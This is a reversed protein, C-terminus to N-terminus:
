KTSAKKATKKRKSKGQKGHTKGRLEKLRHQIKGYLTNLAFHGKENATGAPVGTMLKIAQEAHEVAYIAFQDNACADIVEDSLMLNDINQVPIIVGQDGTLGREKCTAFFGEVKENVG